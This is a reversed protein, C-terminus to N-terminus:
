TEKTTLIEKGAFHYEIGGVIINVVQRRHDPDRLNLGYVDLLNETAPETLFTGALTSMIFVVSRVVDQYPLDDRELHDILKTEWLRILEPGRMRLLPGIRPAGAALERALFSRIKGDRLAMLDSYFDFVDGIATELNDADNIAATLHSFVPRSITDLVKEFLTKKDEFHYYLMYKNVGAASAIQRMNAGEFGKEAFTDMASELIKEKKEATKERTSDKPRPSM